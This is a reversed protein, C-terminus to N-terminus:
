YYYKVEFNLGASEISSDKETNGFLSMNSKSYSAIVSMNDINELYTKFYIGSDNVDGNNLESTKIYTGISSNETSDLYYYFDLYTLPITTTISKEFAVKDENYHINGFYQRFGVGFDLNLNNSATYYSVVDGYQLDMDMSDIDGVSDSFSGIDDSSGTRKNKYKNNNYELKFNPLMDKSIVNFYFSNNKTYNQNLLNSKIDSIRFFSGSEIKQIIDEEDFDEETEDAVASFSLLGIAASLLIEKFM